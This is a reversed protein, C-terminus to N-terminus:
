YIDHVSPKLMKAEVFVAPQHTHLAYEYEPLCPRLYFSNNRLGYLIYFWIYWIFWIYGKYFM